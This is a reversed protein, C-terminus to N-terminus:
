ARAIEAEVSRLIAMFAEAAPSPTRDARRIIGYTTSLWPLDIELRVLQGRTEAEAIQTRTAGGILDSEAVIRQVLSFSGVRVEPAVTGEPLHTRVGHNDKAGLASLRRPLAPSVIPYRRVAELTPNQLELLPHGARCFFNIRHQPLSEVALRDDAKAVETDAIAVDLDDSVVRRLLEPWDGVTLDVMLGPHRQMLRGVATGVSLDAPYPGAGIRLLGVELGLLQKLDREISRAQNLLQRAREILREGIPTPEVHARSRDFLRAGLSKELSQLSRSLAPQTLGVADAARAFNRHQDIALVHRLQRLDLTM